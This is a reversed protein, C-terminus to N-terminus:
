KVTEPDMNSLELNFNTRVAKNASFVRNARATYPDEVDDRMPSESESDSESVEAQAGVEPVEVKKAKKKKNRKKKKKKEEKASKAQEPDTPPTQDKNRCWDGQHGRKGCHPCIGYCQSEWHSTTGCPKSYRGQPPPQGGTAGDM